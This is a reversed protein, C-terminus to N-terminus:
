DYKSYHRRYEEQMHKRSKRRNGRLSEETEQVKRRARTVSEYSPLDYRDHHYLGEYFSPIEKTGCILWCVRAYLKFDDDRTEPHRELVSRVIKYYDKM